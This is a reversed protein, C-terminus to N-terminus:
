GGGVDRDGRRIASRVAELVEPRVESLPREVLAGSAKVHGGGGFRRALANVDVSGNSRFSVKTAGRVTERFLIGVEVGEIDRPYDVLGEVDDATAGLGQFAETPVTMWALDGEPDLMLEGLAAHLLRMKRLPSNGYARRFLEEPDAGKEVLDAAMHHTAPSTNSFRFSGTDTLIAVYLGQVTEPPWPGGAASLVDYVLEGTACATPDRLSIGGLPDSGPPHHDIILSPTEGILEAVAGIRPVEGTDLVVVLDSRGAAEKGLPSGPDLVAVGPPLLFRFPEPFPTPNVIAVEKGRSILWAALAAESGAGDGDANVHTSFLVRNAALLAQLAERVPDIRSSPTEYCM